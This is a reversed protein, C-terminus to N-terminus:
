IRLPTPVWEPPARPPAVARRAPERAPRPVVRDGARQAFLAVGFDPREAASPTASLEDGGRAIEICCGHCPHGGDLAPGEREERDGSCCGDSVPAAAEECADRFDGWDHLCVRLTEVGGSLFAPLLACVILVWRKQIPPPNVSVTM